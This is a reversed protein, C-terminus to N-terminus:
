TWVWPARPRSGPERLEHTHQGLQNLAKKGKTRWGRQSKKEEWGGRGCPERLGMPFSKIAIDWKSSLAGLDRVRQMNDSQTDRSKNGDEAPPIERVIASHPVSRHTFYFTM